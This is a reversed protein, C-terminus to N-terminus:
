VSSFIAYCRLFAQNRLSKTIARCSNVFFFRKTTGPYFKSLHNKINDRDSITDEMYKLRYKM